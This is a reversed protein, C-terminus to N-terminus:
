ISKRTLVVFRVGDNQIKIYREGRGMASGFIDASAAVYYLLGIERFDFDDVLHFGLLEDGLATAVLGVFKIQNIVGIRTNRNKIEELTLRAQALLPAVDLGSLLAHRYAVRSLVGACRQTSSPQKRAPRRAM